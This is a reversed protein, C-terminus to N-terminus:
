LKSQLDKKKKLARCHYQLFQQYIVFYWSTDFLYHRRPTIHLTEFVSVTDKLFVIQKTSFRKSEHM